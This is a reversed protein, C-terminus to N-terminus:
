SKQRKGRSARFTRPPCEELDHGNTGNHTINYLPKDAKIAAREARLASSRSGFWELKINDIQQFWPAYTEHRATRGTVTMSVGVYLLTGAKDFHRYLATPVANIEALLKIAENDQETPRDSGLNRLLDLAAEITKADRQQMAGDLAQRTDAILSERTAPM